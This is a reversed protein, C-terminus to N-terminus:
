KRNGNKRAHKILVNQHIDILRDRPIQRSKDNLYDDSLAILNGISDMLKKPAGPHIHSIKSVPKGTIECKCDQITKKSFHFLYLETGTM